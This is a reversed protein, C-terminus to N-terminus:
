APAVGAQSLHRLNSAAYRVAFVIAIAWGQSESLVYNAVNNIYADQIGIM